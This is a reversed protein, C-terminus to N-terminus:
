NYKILDGELILNNNLDKIIANQEFIIVKNKKNYNANDSKIELKKSPIKVLVNSAKIINGNESIKINSSIFDIEKAKTSLISFFCLIIFILSKKTKM